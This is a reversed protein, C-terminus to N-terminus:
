TNNTGEKLTNIFEQWKEDHQEKTASSVAALAREYKFLQDRQEQSYNLKDALNNLKATILAKSHIRSSKDGWIGALSSTVAILESLVHSAEKLSEEKAYIEKKAEQIKTLTLRLNKIDLESLRSLVPIVICVIALLGLLSCYGLTEIKEDFLLFTFTSFGIIGVAISIIGQM